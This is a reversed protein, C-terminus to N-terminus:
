ALDGAVTELRSRKAAQHSDLSVQVDSIGAIRAALIGAVKQGAEHLLLAASLRDDWEGM